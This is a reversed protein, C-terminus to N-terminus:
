PEPPHHFAEVDAVAATLSLPQGFTVNSLPALTLTSVSNTSNVGLLVSVGGGYANAVALDLKGDGNFDGVAVSNPGMGAVYNVGAQFTGDGNGLLVSVSNSVTDAVALDLKGDGNFDGVAVSWPGSGAGYNVAAQFTGEGNGLLVSVNSSGENAVALDPKGDLNFDGVAVSWPQLGVSYNVATQFTGDGNGLLVSLNNSEENAVALDPKGDGNFDGVAVSWPGSGAGYNVAKAFGASPVGNVAQSVVASTSPAYNTDGSYYAKLSGMGSPLLATTLTAQGGVLPSSELVTTGDYFTV